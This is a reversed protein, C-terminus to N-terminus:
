DGGANAGISSPLRGEEEKEKESPAYEQEGGQRSGASALWHYKGQRHAASTGKCADGIGSLAAQTAKEQPSSLYPFILIGPCIAKFNKSGAQERPIVTARHPCISIDPKDALRAAADGM